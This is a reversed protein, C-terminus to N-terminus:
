PCEGTTHYELIYKVKGVLSTIDEFLLALDCHSSHIINEHKLQKNILHQILKETATDEDPLDNM